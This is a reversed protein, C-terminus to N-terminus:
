EAAPPKDAKDTRRLGIFFLSAGSFLVTILLIAKDGWQVYPTTGRMPQISGQLTATEFQPSQAIVRGRYDILASIGNNTARAMYRGSELARMRAIQLHQHPALSDAFWGDNSVNVLYHAAPLSLRIESGFAAEFCISVGVPHGGARLLTQDKGGATFDAMPIDVFRHFLNFLFRFPLFEGFPLLRRKHYLQGGSAGGISVVSNHFTMTAFSGSPVGSLYDTNTRAAQEQLATKFRPDLDEYFLPIATEPWIIVDSTAAVEQSREAYLLLTQELIQPSFKQRQAINGQILSIRLAEGAPSVWQWRALSWIGAILAVVVITTSIRLARGGTLYAVLAGAIFALAWSIGFVGFYPAINAFLTDSQSYGLTLWPFGSLMWSRVWELLVWLAPALLLWKLPHDRACLRTLLYAFLAPYLAMYLVLLCNALIAFPLPANGYSHLSIYVWYVGAGFYAIGFLFGRWLARRRSLNRCFYFFLALCLMALPSFDFPAFALFLPVGALLALADGGAHPRQM